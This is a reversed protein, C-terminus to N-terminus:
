HLLYLTIITLASAFVLSFIVLELTGSYGAKKNDKQLILKQANDVGLNNNTLKNSSLNKNEFERLKNVSEVQHINLDSNEYELSIGYNRFKIIEQRLDQILFDEYLALDGLFSYYDSVEKQQKENFPTNSSLLSYFEQESILHESEPNDGSISLVKNDKQEEEIDSNLRTAHLKIIKFIDESSLVSLSEFFIGNSSLLDNINFKSIDVKQNLYILYKGNMSLDKLSEPFQEYLNALTGRNVDIIEM